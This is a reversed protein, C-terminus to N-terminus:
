RTMMAIILFENDDPPPPELVWDSFSDVEYRGRKRRPKSAGHGVTAPVPGATAAWLGQLAILLAGFGIGQLAIALPSLGFGPAPPPAAEVEPAAGFPLAGFPAFGFM